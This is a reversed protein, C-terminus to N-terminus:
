MRLNGEAEEWGSKSGCDFHEGVYESSYLKRGQKLWNHIVANIPLGDDTMKEKEWPYGFHQVIEWPFVYAGLVILPSPPKYEGKKPKEVIRSVEYVGDDVSKKVEVVGYSRAKEQPVKKVLLIPDGLKYYLKGLRELSCEKNLLLDDCYRVAFPAPELLQSALFLAHGTGWPKEQVAIQFHLAPYKQRWTPLLKQFRERYLPSVVLVVREFQRRAEELAYDILARGRVEVLAKPRNLSLPRLRTGQGAVPLVLQRPLISM